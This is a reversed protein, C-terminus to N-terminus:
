ATADSKDARARPPVAKPLSPAPADPRFFLSLKLSKAIREAKQGVVAARPADFLDACTQHFLGLWPTFLGETIGEVSQHVVMPQGKYRGTTNLVSSWFDKLTSLHQPWGDEGIASEFIPGLRHHRRIRAYFTEVLLDIEEDTFLPPPVAM